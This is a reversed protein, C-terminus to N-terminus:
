TNPEEDHDWPFPPLERRKKSHLYASHIALGAILGALWAVLVNWFEIM